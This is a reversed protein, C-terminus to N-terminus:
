RVDQANMRRTSDPGLLPSKHFWVDNRLHFTYTRGSDTIEWTHCLAPRFLWSGTNVLGSPEQSTPTPLSTATSVYRTSLKDPVINALPKSSM